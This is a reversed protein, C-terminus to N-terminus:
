PEPAPQLLLPLSDADALLGAWEAHRVFLLVQEQDGLQNYLLGPLQRFLRVRLHLQFHIQWATDYSETGLDTNFRNLIRHLSPWAFRPEEGM